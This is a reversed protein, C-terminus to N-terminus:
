RKGKRRRASIEVEKGSSIRKSKSQRTQMRDATLPVAILGDKDKEKSRCSRTKGGEQMLFHCNDANEDQMNIECTKNYNKVM